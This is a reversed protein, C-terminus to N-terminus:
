SRGGHLDGEFFVSGTEAEISAVAGDPSPDWSTLDDTTLDISALNARPV